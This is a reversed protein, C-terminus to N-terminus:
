VVNDHVEYETPIDIKVEARDALKAMLRWALPLLSRDLGVRLLLEDIGDLLNASISRPVSVTAAQVSPHLRVNTPLNSFTDVEISPIYQVLAQHQEPWGEQPPATLIKLIPTSLQVFKPVTPDDTDVILVGKDPPQAFTTQHPSGCYWANDLVQQRAHMDGLAWYTVRPFSDDLRVQHHKTVNMGADNTCGYVAEHAVVVIPGEGCRSLLSEVLLHFEQDMWGQYPLLIFWIGHFEVVTPVGDYVLHNTLQDSLLSLYTICTDGVEHTRQDHNGSIALVPIESNALWRSLLQRELNTVDMRDFVDGAVVICDVEEHRAVVLIQDLMRSARELYGPYKRLVNIHLDSTHLFRPM